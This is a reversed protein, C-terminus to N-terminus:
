EQSCKRRKVVFCKRAQKAVSRATISGLKFMELFRSESLLILELDIIQKWLFGWDEMAAVKCVYKVLQCVAEDM